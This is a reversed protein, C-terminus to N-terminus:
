KIRRIENGFVQWEDPEPAPKGRSHRYNRWALEALYVAMLVLFFLLMSYWPEHYGYYLLCFAQEANLTVSNQNEEKM